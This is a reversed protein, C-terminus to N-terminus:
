FKGENKHVRTVLMRVDWNTLPRSLEHFADELEDVKHELHDIHLNQSRVRYSTVKESFASIDFSLAGACLALLVIACARWMSSDSRSSSLHESDSLLAVSLLVRSCNIVTCKLGASCSQNSTM